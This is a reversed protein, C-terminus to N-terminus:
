SNAYAPKKNLTLDITYNTSLEVPYNHAAIIITKKSKLNNLLQCVGQISKEDLNIFPEDLLIIKKNTNLARAINLITRQGKSINAAHMALKFHPNKLEDNLGFELLSLINKTKEEQAERASYSIAKFITDGILPADESVLSISKRIEYPTLMKYLYDGLHITGSTPEYLNLILKLLTSKGSSNDGKIVYINGPEFSYSFNNIIPKDMEYGFSVNRMTIVPRPRINIESAPKEETQTNLIAILKKFSISASQWVNNVKLMRKFPSQMYLVLLIFSVVDTNNQMLSKDKYIAYMISAIIGFFLVPM